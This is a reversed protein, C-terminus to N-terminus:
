RWRTAHALCGLEESMRDALSGPRAHAPTRRHTFRATEPHPPLNRHQKARGWVRLPLACLLGLSRAPDEWLERWFVYHKLWRQKAPNMHFASNLKMNRLQHLPLDKNQARWLAAGEDDGAV